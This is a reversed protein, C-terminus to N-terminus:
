CGCAGSSLAQTGSVDPITITRDASAQTMSVVIDNNDVSNSCMGCRALLFVCPRRLASCTRSLPVSHLGAAGIASARGGGPVSRGELRLPTTGIITGPISLKDASSDGLTVDAFATTLRDGRVSFYSSAGLGM